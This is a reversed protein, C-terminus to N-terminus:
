GAQGRASEADGNASHDGVPCERPVSELGKVQAAARSKLAVMAPENDSFNIVHQLGLRELFGAFWRVGFNTIGKSELATAGVTGSRTFKAVVMPSSREDTSMFFFDSCVKPGDKAKEVLARRDRKKHQGLGRSAVCVECWNRYIAHNEDEHDQIQQATPRTVRQIQRFEEGEEVEEESGVALDM